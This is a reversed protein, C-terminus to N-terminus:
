KNKIISYVLGFNLNLIKFESLEYITSRGFSTSGTENIISREAYRNFFVDSVFYTSTFQISIGDTVKYAIGFGFDHAMANSKGEKVNFQTQNYFNDLSTYILQNSKSNNLGFHANINLLVKKSNFLYFQTCLGFALYNNRYAGKTEFSTVNSLSNAADNYIENEMRSFVLDFGIIKSVLFTSTLGINFGLKGYGSNLDLKDRNGFSFVPQSLGGNLRFIVLERKELDNLKKAKKFFEVVKEESEFYYRIVDKSQITQMLYSGDKLVKYDIQFDDASVITCFIKSSDKKVILDQSFTKISLFMLVIM